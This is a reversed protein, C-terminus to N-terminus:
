KARETVLRGIQDAFAPPLSNGGYRVKGDRGILVNHPLGTVGYLQQVTAKDDFLVPVELGRSKAFERLRRLDQRHAVAVLLPQYGRGRYHAAAKEIEPIEALCPECWVAFFHVSVVEGVFRSLAVPRGELDDLQFEPPRDGAKPAESARATAAAALAFAALIPLLWRRALAKVIKVLANTSWGAFVTANPHRDM